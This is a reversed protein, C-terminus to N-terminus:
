AIEGHQTVQIHHHGDDSATSAARVSDALMERHIDLFSYSDFYNADVSADRGKDVGAAKDRSDSMATAAGPIGDAALGSLRHREPAQQLDEAAGEAALQKFMQMGDDQMCLGKLTEVMARLAENEQQLAEAVATASPGGNSGAAGGEGAGDEEEEWYHLLLEDDTLVPRLFAEDRWVQQGPQLSPRPDRGAAVESRIYNIIMCTELQTAAGEQFHPVFHILRSAPVDAYILTSQVCCDITM